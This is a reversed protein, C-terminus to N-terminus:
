ASTDVLAERVLDLLKAPPFPKTMVRFAGLSQAADLFTEPRLRGGGSIAIVRLRPHTKRLRMILEIGEVHPMVLDTIVLDTDNRALHRLAEEGDPSAHVEYGARQLISTLATRLAVDDDVLLIRPKAKSDAAETPQSTEVNM